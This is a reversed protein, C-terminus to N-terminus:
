ADNNSILRLSDFLSSDDDQEAAADASQMHALHQQRAENLASSRDTRKFKGDVYAGDEVSLTEHMITGEVHCSAHLHVDKAKIIGIIKGYVHVTDAYVDGMIRGNERITIQEAKINGEIRGDIDVVGDSIINGLLDMDCSIISPAAKKRPTVKTSGSDKNSKFM